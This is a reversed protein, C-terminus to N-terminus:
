PKGTLYEWEQRGRELLSPVDEPLLFRQQMLKVAAAAFKGLYEDRSSYREAISPRPDGAAKREEATRTFPIFSGLFSLRQEPAGIAPSRLNWGTYSALPAQLEPLRVGGLDNGDADSQPIFVAYPKGVKPPEISVIGQKWQPGFDLHWALVIESPLNVGPIKPFTWKSFPVLTNDALKPYTSPPPAVGERVWQDMDTILARWFWRVPNPNHPQQATYQVAGQQSKAPPFAGSFHQLGALFYVRINEPLPAEAKGDASTHVLSAARGWYEYSTNTYFIKPAHHSPTIADEVGATEGTEPDTEPLDTFPFLDTPYFISSMPQSDRSPQAFRHNFSGRGAGAVHALVGDMVQRDQEDSNFDQYIFHRLFRGSQSIGVAYARQVPAVAQPDYKLYSLFDRVAALGLGAVKPNKATYVLEYIKGPLFGSNLHVFHTDAVVQGQVEHAFSWQGRPIVQRQGNPTDRVTLVNQPSAPDDVPYSQGGNAGLLIHGVPMDSVKESPNFDSRVLGHIESGGEGHAVPAYLKLSQPVDAVDYQWGVWAVTYGHSMFFGDGSENGAGAGNVINLIGRGGRNSVEFLVAGNSKNADKPRVLYLDASFEVEGEANRAAKDLDVIQRNHLNGPKVAFHVRGTIREYPGALGFPKGQQLDARSIVKIRVVRANAASFCLAAFVIMVATLRPFHM